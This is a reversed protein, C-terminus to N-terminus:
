VIKIFDIIGVKDLHNGSDSTATLRDNQSVDVFFDLFTRAIDDRQIEFVCRCQGCDGICHFEQIVNVFSM